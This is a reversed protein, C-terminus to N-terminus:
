DFYSVLNSQQFAFAVRNKLFDSHLDPNSWVEQFNIETGSNSDFVIEGSVPKNIAGLLELLTTKGSGSNGIIATFKSKKIKLNTIKLITKSVNHKNQFNQDINLIKYLNM